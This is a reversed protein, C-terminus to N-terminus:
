MVEALEQDREILGVRLLGRRVQERAAYLRSYATSATCGTAAAVENMPLCEIEFLVFVMRTAEPLAQLAKNLHTLLESRQLQATQAEGTSLEPPREYPQERSRAQRRRVDAAVNRCIGYIWTTIASEGRFAALNRCIIILVEQSVDELQDAPVGLHRLARWVFAAHERVTAAPDASM